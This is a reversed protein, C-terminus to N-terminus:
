YELGLKQIEDISGRPWDRFAQEIAAGASGQLGNPVPPKGPFAKPQVPDTRTDLTLGVVVGVAALTAVAVNVYVRGRPSVYLNWPLPFRRVAVITKSTM